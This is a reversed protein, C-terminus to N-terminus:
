DGNTEEPAYVVSNKLQKIQKELETVRKYINTVHTMDTRVDDDIISVQGKLTEVTNTLNSIREKIASLENTTLENVYMQAKLVDRIAIISKTVVAMVILTISVFITLLTYVNM